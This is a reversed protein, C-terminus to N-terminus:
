NNMRGKPRTFFLILFGIIGAAASGLLLTSLIPWTAKSGPETFLSYLGLTVFFSLRCTLSQISFYTARQGSGIRPSIAANIPADTIAMAFNRFLIILLLAPHLVAGLGAIVIVQIAIASLLLNKLGFKDRWKVSQGAAWAAIVSTAAYLISSIVPANGIILSGQLELIKLYPQYFEYPIHTLVYLFVTFGFLWGLPATQLYRLCEKLQSAVPLGKEKTGSSLGPEHFAFSILLAFFATGFSLIYAYSLKYSGLIGGLLIAVAMSLFQWRYINAEREAYEGEKGLEKLSEYHFSTDTGSRFAMGGALLVQAIAFQFFSSGTFFLVYSVAFMLASIILTRKRGTVDSFYGSPVELIVVCIYYVAELLLVDRLSLYDSFFLFFVPLWAMASILSQYALYLRLNRM